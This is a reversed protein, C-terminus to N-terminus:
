KYTAIVLVKFCASRLYAASPTRIKRVVSLPNAICEDYTYEGFGDVWTWRSNPKIWRLRLGSLLPIVQHQTFAFQVMYVKNAVPRSLPESWAQADLSFRVEAEFRPGDPAAGGIQVVKKPKTTTSRTTSTSRDYIKEMLDKTSGSTTSSAFRNDTTYIGELLLAM